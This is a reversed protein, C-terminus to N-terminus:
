SDLLAALRREIIESPWSPAITERAVGFMEVSHRVPATSTRKQDFLFAYAAVQLAYRRRTGTTPETLTIKTDAVYREGTSSTIVFDAEGHIEFEVDGVTALGDILTEIAVSEASQIREWLDSALFDDLVEEKFFTFLTDVENDDILPAHQHLTENFVRRVEDDVSRLADDSVDHKVLTMLVEHLCTGIDDPGLRDFQLPFDDPIDNAETHLSRGLLHDLVYGDPDETLPYMTSPNIFRPIWPDLEDRRPPTVAVDDSTSPQKTERNAFLNPLNVGVDFTAGSTGSNPTIQYTNTQEGTFQLGDRISDLWRDRPRGDDPISRPLPVVLHVKARSLAVYLLRWAEAHENAAVRQLRSPGVLENRDASDSVTDRWRATAWRLGVDRDRDHEPAYVGGVYPTLPINTLNDTNTPPAIGAVDSQAIFRETHPGRAWLDFGPDAIVIVDDQDGKASHVTRFTVDYSADHTSPQNPGAQPNKRFPEILATLERPSYHEDGEWQAITEVLTDLNAVRQAPGIDTFCNYPDARLTLAEIIDELYTSAPHSHFRDRKERLERLESLVHQQAATLDHNDIVDDLNWDNTEFVDDLVELGLDSEMVLNATRDRDGPSILWECVDLVSKVVSCDFLNTSANRVRLGEDAFAEEYAWMKSTWRFLVTIGLPEGDEDTFTGDAIGKSLLTAVINAEGRGEFPNVWAYSGPKSSSSDFAAIHVHTENTADRAAELGPYTVALEGVDGRAPDTLVPEVIENIAAAVDPVCRYTTTATRNEHVDWDIGLYTGDTTASEFLTPDAHRWRYISQLIDGSCFVRTDPTVLHSLAAHQITSVDQAEDIILSQIRAHYRERIRSRYADDIDEFVDDFYADVLYAVDTHSVVGVERIRKRYADRYASFVTYFDDIYTKWANYLTKDAEVVRRREEDDLDDRGVCGTGTGVCRDIAAIVDEFSTPQGEEYVADFTHELEAKFERTSLGRDRCYSIAKALIDAIGDEYEETPYAAELRDLRQARGHDTRLGEYCESHVRKLLADNGVAPMENFGVDHAIDGLVDRLLSDITGMFPARRVRQVLYELEETALASGAPVLDHEVLERLRDCIAPVITAAEDRNFSIVAVHQEPTSDGMVYRRLLDEAAIHHAVMSKGAGPICNLTFLGSDHTFYADRIDRQANQLRIPDKSM